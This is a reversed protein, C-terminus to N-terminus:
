SDHVIGDVRSKFESRVPVVMREERETIYSDQLAERISDSSLLRKLREELKNKATEANRLAQRLEPTANDRIRGEDDICRILDDLFEKLPDLRELWNLLRPSITKKGNERCLSRCLRLLKILSLCQEPEIMKQEEVDQFVPGLDEFRDMPFSEVSDLLAVMETTEELLNQASDFDNEPKLQQCQEQTIPSCAHNALASTVRNWGLLQMSKEILDVLDSSPTNSM